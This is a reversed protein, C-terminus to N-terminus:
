KEQAQSYAYRMRNISNSRVVIKIHNCLNFRPVQMRSAQFVSREIVPYDKLHRGFIYIERFWAPPQGWVGQDAQGFTRCGLTNQSNLFVLARAEKRSFFFGVPRYALTSNQQPCAGLGGPDAEGLDPCGMTKQSASSVSKSRKQFFFFVLPRYTLTSNQQPCAGLGGPDAEGLDPCGMTKQLASSVSKSRKQFLLFGCAPVNVYLKAPPIGGSGRPRSRRTEPQV